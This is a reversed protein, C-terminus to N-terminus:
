GKKFMQKGVQKKMAEMQDIAKSAMLSSFLSEAKLMKNDSIAEILSKITQDQATM